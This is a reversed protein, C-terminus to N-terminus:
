NDATAVARPRGPLANCCGDTDSRSLSGDRGLRWRGYDEALVLTGRYHASAESRIDAISPSRTEDAGYRPSFHTLILNPLAISEAFRAVQGAASHMFKAGARAAAADTYTAEHVLLQAGALADALLEPRDNDGGIVLRRAPAPPLQFADRHFRRGGHEITEGSKLRGWLPGPPLGASRLRAEDLGPPSPRESFRYAYSPVRHSLAIAEVSWDGDRWDALTETAVHVIEYPLHLTTHTITAALWEAVGRPAILPLPGRRGAMAASALLGPLGYCHDGHVHTILVARLSAASLSTALLRHQTAEGCDVLYWGRGSDPILALATVNRQRTPTGSSTGLFLLDM